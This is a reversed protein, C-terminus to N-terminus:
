QNLWDEVSIVKKGGSPAEANGFTSLYRQYLARPIVTKYGKGTDIQIAGSSSIRDRAAREQEPTLKTVGPKYGEVVKTFDDSFEGKPSGNANFGGEADHFVGTGKSTDGVFIGGAKVQSPDIAAFEDPTLGTQKHLLAALKTQEKVEPAVAGRYSVGGKANVSPTFQTDPYATKLANLTDAVTKHADVHDQVFKSLDKDKAMVHLWDPRNGFVKGIFTERDPSGHPYRSEDINSMFDVVQARATDQAVVENQKASEIALRSKNAINAQQARDLAAASRSLIELEARSQSAQSPAYRPHRTGGGIVVPQESDLMAASAGIASPHLLGLHVKRTNIENQLQNRRTQIGVDILQDTSPMQFKPASPYRASVQYVDQQDQEAKRIANERAIGAAYEEGTPYGRLGTTGKPTLLVSRDYSVPGRLQGGRGLAQTPSGPPQYQSADIWQQADMVDRAHQLEQQRQIAYDSLEDTDAM